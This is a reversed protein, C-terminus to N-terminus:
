FLSPMAHFWMKELRTSSSDIFMELFAELSDNGNVPVRRLHPSLVRQVAKVVQFISDSICALYRCSVGAERLHKCRLGNLSLGLLLFQRGSLAYNSTIV